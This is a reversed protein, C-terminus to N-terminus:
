PLPLRLQKDDGTWPGGKKLSGIFKKQITRLKRYAASRKDIDIELPNAVIELGKNQVWRLYDKFQHRAAASLVDQVKSKFKIKAQQGMIGWTNCINPCIEQVDVMPRREIMYQLIRPTVVEAVEWLASEENLPVFRSPVRSWDIKLKSSFLNTLDSVQFGSHSLMLGENDALILPFPYGGDSIGILLRDGYDDQGVLTVDHSHVADPSIFAKVIIDKQTVRSYRRLQDPETNAGSKFELLLTHKVQESILILDPSVKELDQNSFPYDIWKDNYGLNRLDKPLGHVGRCMGIWLNLM